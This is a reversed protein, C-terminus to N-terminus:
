RGQGEDEETAQPDSDDFGESERKAKRDAPFRNGIVQEGDHYPGIEAVHDFLGMEEAMRKTTSM